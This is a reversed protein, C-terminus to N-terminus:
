ATVVATSQRRVGEDRERNVARTLQLVWALFVVYAVKQTAPLITAGTGSAWLAYNLAGVGAAMLGGICLARRGGRVLGTALGALAVVASAVALHIVADHVPSFVLASGLMTLTGAVRVVRGARPVAPFLEPLALWLPVLALPLAITAVLAVPRGPNPLGGYAIADTLDCWYNGLHSYGVTHPDLRTGGPYRSAAHFYAAVFAWVGLTPARMM